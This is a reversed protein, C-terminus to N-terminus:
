LPGVGEVWDDYGDVYGYEHEVPRKLLTPLM